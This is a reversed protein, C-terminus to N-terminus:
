FRGQWCVKRICWGLGELALLIPFWLFLGLVMMIGSLGMLLIAVLVQYGSYLNEYEM